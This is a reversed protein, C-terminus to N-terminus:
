LCAWRWEQPVAALDSIEVLDWVPSECLPCTPPESARPDYLTLFGKSLDTGDLFLYSLEDDEVVYRGCCTTRELIYHSNSAGDAGVRQSFRSQDIVSM